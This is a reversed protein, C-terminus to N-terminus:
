VVNVEPVIEIGFKELVSEQIKLALAYIENGTAGGYNVLVLAQAKHVGTQGVVKGKWGCQEIL